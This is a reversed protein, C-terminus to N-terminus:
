WCGRARARKHTPAPRIERTPGIASVAGMGAPNTRLVAVPDSRGELFVRYVTDPKLKSVTVELIAAELEGAAPQAAGSRHGDCHLAPEPDGRRPLHQVPGHLPLGAHDCRRRGGHAYVYAYERARHGPGRKPSCTIRLLGVAICLMALVTHIAGALTLNALM